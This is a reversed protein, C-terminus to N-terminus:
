ENIVNVPSTNGGKEARITKMKEIQEKTLICKLDFAVSRKIEKLQDRKQAETLAADNMVAEKKSQNVRKMEKLQEMQEFSLNLEKLTKQQRDTISGNSKIEREGNISLSQINNTDAVKRQVQAMVNLGIFILGGFLLVKKM